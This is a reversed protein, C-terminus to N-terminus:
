ETREKERKQLDEPDLLRIDFGKQQEVISRVCPNTDFKIHCAVTIPSEGLEMKGIAYGLNACLDLASLQTEPEVNPSYAISLARQYLRSLRELFINVSIEQQQRTRRNIIDFDDQFLEARYREVTRQPLQLKEVVQRTTFGNTLLDAIQRKAWARRAINYRRKPKPTSNNENSSSNSNDGTSSSFDGNEAL